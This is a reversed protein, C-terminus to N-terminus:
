LKYMLSFVKRFLTPFDNINIHSEPLWQYQEKDKNSMFYKHTKVSQQSLTIDKIYLTLDFHTFSHTIFPSDETPHIEKIINEKKVITELNKSIKNRINKDKHDWQTTPLAKMGGLMGNPSRTETIISGSGDRLIFVTGERKPKAKKKIKCPLIQELGKKKAACLNAVPCLECQPNKPKCISSALDMIAQAFDGTRGTHAEDLDSYLHTAMGQLIKKSESVPTQLAYIRACFREVNGDVVVAPKNFAIALIANATYRGIGPLAILEEYTSPFISNYQTQVARACKLMNRARAYYGLGAWLAMIEQDDADALDQASPYKETFKLFYPIVAPVTTQQLMIESLWTHYPNPKERGHRWPLNRKHDDYWALLNQQIQREINTNNM